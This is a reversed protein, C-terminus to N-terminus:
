FDPSTFNSLEGSSVRSEIWAQVFVFGFMFFVLVSFPLLPLFSFFLNWPFFLLFSLSSNLYLYISTCKLLFFFAQSKEPRWTLLHATIVMVQIRLNSYVQIWYKTKGIGKVSTSKNSLSSHLWGFSTMKWFISALMLACFVLFPTFIRHRFLDM